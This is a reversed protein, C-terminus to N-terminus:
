ITVEFFQLPSEVVPLVWADEEVGELPDHVGLLQGVPLQNRLNHVIRAKYNLTSVLSFGSVRWLITIGSTSIGNKEKTVNSM